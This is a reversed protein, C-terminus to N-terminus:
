DARKMAKDKTRGGLLGRACDPCIGHTVAVRSIEANLESREWVGNRKRERGCWACFCRARGAYKTGRGITM